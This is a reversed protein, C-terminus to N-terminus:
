RALRPAHSLWRAADLPQRRRLHRPRLRWVLAAALSLVLAVGAAATTAALAEPSLGVPRTRPAADRAPRPAAIRAPPRWALVAQASQRLADTGADAFTAPWRGAAVLVLATLTVALLTSRRM